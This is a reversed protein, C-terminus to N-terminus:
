ASVPLMGRPASGLLYLEFVIGLHIKNHSCWVNHAM